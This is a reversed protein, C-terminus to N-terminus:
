IKSKVDFDCAARLVRILTVLWKLPLHWFILSGMYQYGKLKDVGFNACTIIDAMERSMCFKALIPERPAERCISLYLSKTLNEKGERGKGKREKKARSLM